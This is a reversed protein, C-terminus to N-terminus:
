KLLFYAKLNPFGFICVFLNTYAYFIQAVLEVPNKRLFVNGGFVKKLFFPNVPLIKVAMLILMQFCEGFFLFM